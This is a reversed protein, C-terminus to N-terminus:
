LYYISDKLNERGINFDSNNQRTKEKISRDLEEM